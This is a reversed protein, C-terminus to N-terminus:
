EESMFPLGAYEPLAGRQRRWQESPECVGVVEFLEPFHRVAQMKGQGHNHGIGIQGIKVKKM